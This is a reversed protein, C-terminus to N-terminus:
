KERDDNRTRYIDEWLNERVHLKEKKFKYMYDLYVNICSVKDYSNVPSQM